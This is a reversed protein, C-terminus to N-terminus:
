ESRTEIVSPDDEPSEYNMNTCVVYFVSPHEHMYVAVSHCLSCVLFFFSFSFICIFASYSGLVPFDEMYDLCSLMICFV